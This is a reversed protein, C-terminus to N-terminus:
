LRLFTPRSNTFKKWNAFGTPREFTLKRSADYFKM